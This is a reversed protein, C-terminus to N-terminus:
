RSFDASRPTIKKDQKGSAAGSGAANNGAKAKKAPPTSKGEAGNKPLVESTAESTTMPAQAATCGLHAQRSLAALRPGKCCVHTPSCHRRWSRCATLLHSFCVKELDGSKM